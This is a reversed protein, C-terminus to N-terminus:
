CIVCTSNVKALIERFDQEHSKMYSLPTVGKKDPQNLNAGSNILLQVTKLARKECAILLPTKGDKNPLNLNPKGKLLLNALDIRRDGTRCTFLLPTDGEDDAIDLNAGSEILLQVVEQSSQECAVLVATKGQYGKVDLNPKRRLLLKIRAITADNFDVCALCLPTRNYSDLANVDVLANLLLEAAEINHYYIAQHLPSRTGRVSSLSVRSAILYRMIDLKNHEAAWALPTTGTDITSHELARRNLDAGARVLFQVVELNRRCAQHLATVGEENAVNINAGRDLFLKIVRPSCVLAATVFAVTSGRIKGFFETYGPGRAHINAGAKLLIETKEDVDQFQNFFALTLLFLLPTPSNKMTIRSNITTEINAGARILLLMMAPKQYLAWFLGTGTELHNNRTTTAEINCLGNELLEKAVVLNGTHIAEFFRDNQEIEPRSVVRKIKAGARLLVEIMENTKAYFILNNGASDVSNTLEGRRIYETVAQLDDRLVADFIPHRPGAAPAPSAAPAIRAQVVASARAAQDSSVGNNAVNSTPERIVSATSSAVASNSDTVPQVRDELSTPEQTLERYMEINMQMLRNVQLSQMPLLNQRCHPCKPRYEAQQMICIRCFTHRQPCADVPDTMVDQCIACTVTGKLQNLIRSTGSGTPAACM